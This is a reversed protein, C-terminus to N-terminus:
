DTFLQFHNKTDSFYLYKDNNSQEFEKNKISKGQRSAFTVICVKESTKLKLHKGHFLSYFKLIHRPHVFNIFAYGSNILVDNKKSVKFPIYIFDYVRNEKEPSIFFKEDLKKSLDSPKFYSPINMMRVTTRKEKGTKIDMLNIIYKKDITKKTKKQNNLQNELNLNNLYNMLQYMNMLNNNYALQRYYNYTQYLNRLKIMQEFQNLQNIKQLNEFYQSQTNKENENPFKNYYNNLNPFNDNINNQNVINEETINTVSDLFSLDIIKKEIFDKLNEDENEEKTDKISSFSIEGDNILSNSQSNQLNNLENESISINFAKSQQQNM